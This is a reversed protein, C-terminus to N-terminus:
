THIRLIPTVIAIILADSMNPDFLKYVIKCDPYMNTYGNIQEELQDFMKGGNEGGFEEECYKKYLTNFDIRRLCISRDAKKMHLDLENIANARLQQLFSM